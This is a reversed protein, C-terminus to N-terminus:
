TKMKINSQTPNKTQIWWNYGEYGPYELLFEYEYSHYRNIKDLYLLISYKQSSISFQAEKENNFFVSKSSNHFHVKLWIGKDDEKIDIYSRPIM